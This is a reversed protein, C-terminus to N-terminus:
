RNDRVLQRGQSRANVERVAQTGSRAAAISGRAGAASAVLAGRGAASAGKVGWRAALGAIAGNIAAGAGGGLSAAISPTQIFLVIGLAYVALVFLAERLFQVPDSFDGDVSLMVANVAAVVLITIVLLMLYNVVAAIWGFMFQRTQEFIGALVFLPGVAALLALAFIAVLSVVFGAAAAIFSAALIFIITAYGALWIPIAKYFDLAGYEDTQEAITIEIEATERDALILMRDFIQGVDGVGGGAAAAFANPLGETIAAAFQGYLSTAIFFGVAFLSARIVVDRAPAAINGRMVAYGYIAFYIGLSSIVVPRAIALFAGFRGVVNDVLADQLVPFMQSFIDIAM